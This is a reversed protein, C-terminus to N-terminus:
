PEEVIDSIYLLSSDIQVKTRRLNALNIKPTRGDVIFVIGGYKTIDDESSVTLIQYAAVKEILKRNTLPDKDLVIVNCSQEPANVASLLSVMISRGKVVRGMLDKSLADRLTSSDAICVQITKDVDPDKWRTYSIVYYHAAILFSSPRNGDSINECYAQQPNCCLLLFMSILTISWSSELKITRAKVNLACMIQM